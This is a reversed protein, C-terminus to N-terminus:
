CIFFINGGPSVSLNLEICVYDAHDWSMAPVRKKLYVGLRKM